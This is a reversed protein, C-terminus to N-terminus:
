PVPPTTTRCLRIRETLRHAIFTTPSTMVRVEDVGTAGSFTLDVCFDGRYFGWLVGDTCCTAWTWNCVGGTTSSYTCEGSDDSVLVGAIVAPTSTWRMTLSGGSGDAVDDVIAAIALDDCTAPGQHVVIVV